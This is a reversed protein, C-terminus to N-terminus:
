VIDHGCGRPTLSIVEREGGGERGGRGGQGGERDERGGEGKRGGERGRGEERGRRGRRERRGGEKRGGKGDLTSTFRSKVNYQESGSDLHVGVRTM